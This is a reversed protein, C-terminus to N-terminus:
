SHCDMRRRRRWQSRKTQTTTQRNRNPKARNKRRQWKWKALYTSFSCTNHAIRNRLSPSGNLSFRMKFRENPDALSLLDVKALHHFHPAAPRIWRFSSHFDSFSLVILWFCDVQQAIQMRNQHPRSYHPTRKMWFVNVIRSHFVFRFFFGFFFVKFKNEKTKGCPRCGLLM